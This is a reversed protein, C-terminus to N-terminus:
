VVCRVAAPELRLSLHTARRVREGDLWVDLPRAFSVQLAGVRRERIGPHPVHTGSPLRQRAKLRDGLSLQLDLTDLLGDGPHARPAVDWRGFLGVSFPRPLADASSSTSSLARWHPM